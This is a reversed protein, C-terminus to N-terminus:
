PNKITANQNTSVFIVNIELAGQAPQYQGQTPDCRNFQSPGIGRGGIKVIVEGKDNLITLRHARTEAVWIQNNLASYAIGTPQELVLSDNLNRLEKSVLDKM